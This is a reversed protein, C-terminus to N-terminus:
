RMSFDAWTGLYPKKSERAFRIADLAGETNAYPSAPVCWIGDFDELQAAPDSLLSTHSWLGEVTLGADEGALLLAQPIAQHATVSANFDGILAVRVDAM